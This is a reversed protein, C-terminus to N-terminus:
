GGSMARMTSHSAASSLRMTVACVKMTSPPETYAPRGSLMLKARIRALNAALPATRTIRREDLTRYVAGWAPLRIAPQAATYRLILDWDVLRDLAEDFGGFQAFLARRHVFVNLDIFNATELRARDFPEWFLRTDRDHEASILVGYASQMQPMRAFGRAMAALYGPLWLNDSDLYAVLDGTARRLGHNRAASVGLPPQRLLVIRPDDFERRLLPAVPQASGDDIVILEFDRWHQALVSRIAQRLLHPRDRVPLIVSFRLGPAAAEPHEAMDLAAAVSEFLVSRPGDLLALRRRLRAVERRLRLIRLEELRLLARAGQLAMRPLRACHRLVTGLAPDQATAMQDLFARTTIGM